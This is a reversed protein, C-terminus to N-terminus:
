WVSKALHFTNILAKPSAVQVAAIRKWRFTGRLIDDTATERRQSFQKSHM